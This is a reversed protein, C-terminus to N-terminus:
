RGGSARDVMRGLALGFRVRRTTLLSRLRELESGADLARAGNQAAAAEAAEARERWRGIEDALERLAVERAGLERWLAMARGEAGIFLRAWRAVEDLGSIERGDSAGVGDGPHLGRLLEVLRHAHHRSSHHTQVLENNVMGMSPRYGALDAALDDPELPRTAALGAFGDAEIAAYNDATVWGDGGFADYIYVARGCSMAELAARGRAVVIDAQAIAPRVDLAPHTPIGTQTCEIGEERWTDVIAARREGDLYNGLLLARRPRAPLAGAPAFRRTDIPQRLRLVPVDLALARVREAVRANLVVVADVVGATLVPLQHDFLSSHAVHIVRAEPYHSVLAATVVSDQVLAVDCELPLASAGRAIRLGREEAMDALPGLEEAMLTVDHGLRDFEHALTLCYSESGGPEALARTALVIRLAPGGRRKTPPPEIATELLSESSRTASVPVNQETPTMEM